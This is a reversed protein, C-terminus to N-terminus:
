RRILNKNKIIEEYSENLKNGVSKMSFKKEILNRANKGINQKLSVDDILTIISEVINSIEGPKIFFLSNNYNLEPIADLPSTIVPNGSAMAELIVLPPATAWYPVKFPLLIIDSLLYIEEIPDIPGSFFIKKSDNKFYQVLYKKYYDNEQKLNPHCIYLYINEKIKLLKKYAKLVDFFGRNHDIQGVYLIVKGDKPINNKNRLLM